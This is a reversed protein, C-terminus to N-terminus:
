QTGRLKQTLYQQTEHVTTSHLFQTKGLNQMNQADVESFTNRRPSLVLSKSNSAQEYKMCNCCM